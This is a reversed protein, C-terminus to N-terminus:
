RRALLRAELGDLIVQLGFVFSDEPVAAYAAAATDLRARLRPFQAAVARAQALRERLREEAEEGARRVQRPLEAAAAAGLAHGLVYTFVVTAAQDAEVGAFGAAEYLALSHEDYRAKGPGYVVYSGFTQVLWPHHTLLTYLETALVTAATRWDLTALDPLPIEGWLRDGALALLDDKTPLHWYVATAAAGLRKGLARMNLGQLGEADLLAIAATLIQDRTLTDTRM